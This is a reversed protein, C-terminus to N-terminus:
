PAGTDNIDVDIENVLGSPQQDTFSTFDNTSIVLQCAGNLEIDFGINYTGVAVAAKTFTNSAVGSVISWGSESWGDLAATTVGDIRSSGGGYNDAIVVTFQGNTQADGAAVVQVVSHLQQTGGEIDFSSADAPEDVLASFSVVTITDSDNPGASYAIQGTELEVSDIAVTGATDGANVTFLLTSTGVAHSAKLFAGYYSNTPDDWTWAGAASWGDLDDNSPATPPSAGYEVSYSINLSFVLTTQAGGGVTPTVELAINGSAAAPEPTGDVLVDFTRVAAVTVTDGSESPDAIQDSSGDISMTITGETSGAGVTVLITSTGVPHAARTYTADWTDSSVTDWGTLNTWGDLDVDVPTAPRTGGGSWTLTVTVSLGTQAKGGVVIPISLTVDAM